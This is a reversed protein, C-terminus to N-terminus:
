PELDAGFAGELSRFAPNSDTISNKLTWTGIAGIPLDDLDEMVGVFQGDIRGNADVTNSEDFYEVELKRGIRSLSARSFEVVDGSEFIRASPFTIKKIEGFGDDFYDNGSDVLESVVADITGSNDDEFEATLRITGTYFEPDEGTFDSAVVTKGTYVASIDEPVTEAADWPSYAFPKLEITVRSSTPSRIRDYAAVGFRTHVTTDFALISGEQISDYVDYADYRSSADNDSFVGDDDELADRFARRSSLADIAAEILDIGRQREEEFDTRDDFDPPSGLVEEGIALVALADNVSAWIDEMYSVLSDRAEGRAVLVSAKMLVLDHELSNRVMDVFTLETEIYSSGELILDTLLISLDDIELYEGEEDLTTDPDDESLSVDGIVSDTGISDYVIGILNDSSDKRVHYNFGETLVDGTGDEDLVGIGGLIAYTGDETLLARLPTYLIPTTQGFNFTAVWMGDTLRLVYSYGNQAVTADGSNLTEGNLLYTGDDATVVTVSSGSDGLEVTFEESQFTATWTDGLLTLRYVNGNDLTVTGGNPFTEGNRTYSRAATQTLTVTEGSSGLEVTVTVPEPAPPPPPPPPVPVPAPVVPRIVVVEKSGCGMLGAILLGTALLSLPIGLQKHKM